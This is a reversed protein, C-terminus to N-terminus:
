TNLRRNRRVLALGLAGLGMLAFTAPEPAPAVAGSMEFAPTLVDSGSYPTGMTIYIGPDNVAGGSMMFQLQQGTDWIQFSYTGPNLVVTSGTTFAMEYPNADTRSAINYFTNATTTMLVSPTTAVVSSM